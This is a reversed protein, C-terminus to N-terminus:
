RILNELMKKLDIVSFPINQFKNVFVTDSCFILPLRYDEPHHSGHIKDHGAHDSTVLILYSKEKLIFEILDTLYEDIYSLEELYEPSMWGYQPGVADLGSIHLFMFLRGPTKIFAEAADIASDQSWQHFNVANNVLYGLKEKSYFYGTKFGLHRASNFFTEIELTAEGPKWDNDLKGNREPALGTFMATHAVLTMPPETSRGNLTYSGTHMLKSITPIKARQLAEPHLADISIILVHNLHGAYVNGAVIAMVACIMMFRFASSFM